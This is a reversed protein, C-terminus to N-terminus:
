EPSRTYPDGISLSNKILSELDSSSYENRGDLKGADNFVISGGLCLLGLCVIAAFLWSGRTKVSAMKGTADPGTAEKPYEAFTIWCYNDQTEGEALIISKEVSGPGSSTPHFYFKPVPMGLDIFSRNLLGSLEELDAPFRVVPVHLSNSM